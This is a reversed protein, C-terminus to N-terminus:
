QACKNPCQLGGDPLRKCLPSRTDQVFRGQCRNLALQNPARDGTTLQPAMRRDPTATVTYTVTRGSPDIPAVQGPEGGAPNAPPPANIGIGAPNATIQPQSNGNTLKALLADFKKDREAAEEKLRALQAALDPSKSATTSESSGVFNRVTSSEGRSWDIAIFVIVALIFLGTLWGIWQNSGEEEESPKGVKKVKELWNDVKEKTDKKPGKDKDDAM